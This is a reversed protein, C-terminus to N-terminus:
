RSRARGDVARKLEDAHIATSAPRGHADDTHDADALGALLAGTVGMNRLIALLGATVQEGSAVVVDYEDDSHGLGPRRAPTRGWGDTWAVLENTKGAM